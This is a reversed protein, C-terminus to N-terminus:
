LVSEDKEPTMPCDVSIPQRAASKDSFNLMKLKLSVPHRKDSRCSAGFKDRSLDTAGELLMDRGAM